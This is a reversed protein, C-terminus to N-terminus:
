WAACTSAALNAVYMSKETVVLLRQEMRNKKGLVEVRDAFLIKADNAGIKPNQKIAQFELSDKASIYDGAPL